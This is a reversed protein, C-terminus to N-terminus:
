QITTKTFLSERERVVSLVTDFVFPHRLRGILCVSLALTFFAPVFRDVTILLQAFFITGSLKCTQM